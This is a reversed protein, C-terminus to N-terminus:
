GDLKVKEKIQEINIYDGIKREWEEPTFLLFGGACFFTFEGFYIKGNIEYFDMRVQPMGKSLKAAIEKMQDFFPPRERTIGSDTSGKEILLHNFDMDYYDEHKESFRGSVIFMLKPEGNFCFFKYDCIGGTEGEAEMLPEALICPKINKYPYERGAYYSNLKLRGRYFKALSKKEQETLTNKDHIIKVSGSDHNCKLVFSNPLENFDIDEFSDWTGLLPFTYGEGLQEKIYDRVKVKDALETYEPHVDYLKLWQLKENYGKPDQLNLKRGTKIRYILKLYPKDPLIRFLKTLKLRFERNKIVDRYDILELVGVFFNRENM